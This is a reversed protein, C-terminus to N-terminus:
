SPCVEEIWEKIRDSNATMDPDDIQLGGTDVFHEISDKVDSPPNYKEMTDAAKRADEKSSATILDLNAGSIDVCASADVSAPPEGSGSSSSDSPESTSSASSSASKSTASASTSAKASAPPAYKNNSCGAVLLGAVLGTAVVALIWRYM